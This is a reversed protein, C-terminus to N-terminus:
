CERMQALRGHLKWRSEAREPAPAARKQAAARFHLVAAVAAIDRLTSDPETATRSGGRALFRDIFETDIRGLQMEESKLIARFFPLTTNIGEIVCDDLARALRALAAGRSEAWVSLKALLPDYYIPVEWGDYIGSDLRVGPGSPETIRTVRGPSPLFDNDPDEAYIRCEIAAGRMVVEEQTFSLKNGAAIRIQEHVLDRGVVMETVPHEVQLRTNMELFYFNRHGDVLFEITGANSYSAARAIAVAAKGMRGRLTEDVIPSPCEEMVKQHRRQLSCEREGLYVVNGHRDGMLQIEIHRPREILKEVYLSPDGFSSLAEARALSFASSIEERSRVLRMGKGGGGATAKLMVPYGIEASLQEAEQSTEVPSTAGPVVPAGASLAARRASTKSGM